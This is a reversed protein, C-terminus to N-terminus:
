DCDSESESQFAAKGAWIALGTAPIGIAIALMVEITLPLHFYGSLAWVTAAVAAALETWIIAIASLVVLM